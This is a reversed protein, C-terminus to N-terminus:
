LVHKDFYLLAVTTHNEKGADDLVFIM